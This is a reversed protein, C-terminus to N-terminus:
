DENKGKRWYKHRRELNEAKTTKELNERQNDFSNGNKHDVEMGEPDSMILRHMWVTKCKGNNHVSRAAYSCYSAKKAFWKWQNLWKFDTDDVM